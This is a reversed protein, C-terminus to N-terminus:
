KTEHLALDLAQDLPMAHGAAHLATFREAGLQDHAIQIHRAFEVHDLTPTRDGTMECLTQAAGFLTAAHEPRNTGAAVATLGEASAGASGLM